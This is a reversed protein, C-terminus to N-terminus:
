TSKKNRRIVGLGLLGLGLLAISTPEPISNGRLTAGGTHTFGDATASQLPQFQSTFALDRGGTQTNTDFRNAAMGGTVDFLGSGLGGLGAAFVQTLIGNLTTGANNGASDVAVLSLWLNGDVATLQNDIDYDPTNDVYVSMWGGTFAFPQFQGGNTFIDIGLSGAAVGDIPYLDLLQYGGFVYTLECGPCFSAPLLGNFENVRGFGNITNGTIATAIEFVSGTSTFDINAGPNWVVGGVNDAQAGTSAIMLASATLLGATLKSLKMKIEKISPKTHWFTMQRPKNFAFM